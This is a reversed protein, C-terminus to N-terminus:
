ETQLFRKELSRYHSLGVVEFMEEFSAMHAAYGEPTGKEYLEGMARQVGKIAAMWATTPFIAIRFGLSELANTDVPPTGGGDVMNVLLPTDKLIRPIRRLDETTRPAEVFLVDAGAEGYAKAREIAHDFGYVAIADTRAILLFHDDERAQKFAEIKQIMEEASILQKGETHGCRKPTVQDEIQIAAVGIREFEKATRMLNLANGYGTDADCIVPISTAAVVNKATDLVETMTALGIDPVGLRSSAVGAGTIYIAPFGAQEILRASLADYAGPAVILRDGNLLRQLQDRRQRVNM